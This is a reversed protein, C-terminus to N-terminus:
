STLRISVIREIGALDKEVKIVVDLFTNNLITKVANVQGQGIELLLTGHPRLKDRAGGCLAIIKDLGEVGGDLALKPEFKLTM